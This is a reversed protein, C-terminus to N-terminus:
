SPQRLCSDSESTFCLLKLLRQIGLAESDCCQQLEVRGAFLWIHYLAFVIDVLIQILQARSGDTPALVGRLACAGDNDGNAHSPHGPTTQLFFGVDFRVCVSYRKVNSRFAVSNASSCCSQLTLSQQSRRTITMMSVSRWFM